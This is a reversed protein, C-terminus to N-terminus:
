PNVIEAVGEIVALAVAAWTQRHQPPMTDFTQGPEPDLPTQNEAHAIYARRALAYVVRRLLLPYMPAKGATSM